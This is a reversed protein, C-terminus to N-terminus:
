MTLSRVGEAFRAPGGTLATADAEVTLEADIGFAPEARPDTLALAESADGGVEAVVKNNPM